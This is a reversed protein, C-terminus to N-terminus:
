LNGSVGCEFSQTIDEKNVTAIEQVDSSIVLAGGDHKSFEIVRVIKGTFKESNEAIVSKANNSIHVYGTVKM